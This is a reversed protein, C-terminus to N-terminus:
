INMVEYVWRGGLADEAVLVPHVDEYGEPRGLRVLVGEEQIAEIAAEAVPVYDQWRKKNGRADGAHDPNEQCAQCIARAVREKISMEEKKNPSM